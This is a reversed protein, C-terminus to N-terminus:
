RIDEKTDLVFKIKKSGYIYLAIIELAFWVCLVTIIWSVDPHVSTKNKDVVGISCWHLPSFYFIINSYIVDAFIRMFVIVGSIIAGINHRVTLNFLLVVLGLIVSIVWVMGFSYLFGELPSFDSLVIPQVHFTLGFTQAANTSAVTRIITGWSETDFGLYPFLAVCFCVFIFLFYTLSVFIVYFVQSFIWARKGSRSLMFMQQNDKFPLDCFMVFVGIFIIFVANQNTLLFSASFGNVPISYHAAMAKLSTTFEYVAAIALIFPTWFNVTSLHKYLNIRTVRLASLM